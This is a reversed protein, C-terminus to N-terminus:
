LDAYTSHPSGSSIMLQTNLDRGMYVEPGSKRQTLPVTDDRAGRLGRGSSTGSYQLFVVVCM